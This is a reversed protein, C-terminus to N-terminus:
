PLLVYALAGAKLLTSRSFFAIFLIVFAAIVLSVTLAADTLHSHLIEQVYGIPTTM